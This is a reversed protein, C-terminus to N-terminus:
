GVNRGYVQDVCYEIFYRVWLEEKGTIENNYLLDRASNGINGKVTLQFGLGKLYKAIEKYFPDKLLPYFSYSKFGERLDERNLKNWVTQEIEHILGQLQANYTLRTILM